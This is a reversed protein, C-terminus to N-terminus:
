AALLLGPGGALFFAARWGFRPELLGGLSTASRRASRSRPTSSPSGAARQGTPALDDIITPSLTAYSAEGVGVAVRALFM